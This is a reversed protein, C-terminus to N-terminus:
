SWSRPGVFAFESDHNGCFDSACVKRKTLKLKKCEHLQACHADLYLAPPPPWLELIINKRGWPQTSPKVSGAESTLNFGARIKGSESKAEHMFYQENILLDAGIKIKLSLPM